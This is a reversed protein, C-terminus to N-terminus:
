RPADCFPVAPPIERPTGGAPLVFRTQSRTAHAKTVHAPWNTQHWAFTWAPTASAGAPAPSFQITLHGTTEEHCHRSTQYESQSFCARTMKSCAFPVSVFLRKKSDLPKDDGDLLVFDAYAYLAGGGSYAERLNHVLAVAYRGSGAPYLAPYLELPEKLDDAALVRSHTYGAFDWSHAIRRDRLAILMPRSADILFTNGYPAGTALWARTNQPDCPTAMTACLQAMAAAPVAGQPAPHFGIARVPAPSQACAPALAGLLLLMGLRFKLGYCSVLCRAFSEPAGTM